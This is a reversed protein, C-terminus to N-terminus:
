RGLKVLELPTSSEMCVNQSQCHHQGCTTPLAKIPFQTIPLGFQWPISSLVTIYDNLWPSSESLARALYQKPNPFCNTLDCDSFSLAVQNRVLLGLIDDVVDDVSVYKEMSSCYSSLDDGALEFLTLLTQSDMLICKYEEQEINLKDGSISDLEHKIYNHITLGTNFPAIVKERAILLLATFQKLGGNKLVTWAIRNISDTYEVLVRLSDLIPKTEWLCLLVVLKNLSAGQYWMYLHEMISLYILLFHIPLGHMAGITCYVNALCTGGCKTLMLDIVQSDEPCSHTIYALPTVGTDPLKAANDFTPHMNCVEGRVLAILCKSAGVEVCENVLSNIIDLDARNDRLLNVFNAEDDSALIDEVRSSLGQYDNSTMM